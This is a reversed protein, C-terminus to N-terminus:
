CAPRGKPNTSADVTRIPPRATPNVLDVLRSGYVQFLAGFFFRGFRSLHWAVSMLREDERLRKARPSLDQDADDPAGGTIEISPLQIRLFDSLHVRLVGLHSGDRTRLHFFTTTLDSLLDLGPDDQVVKRGMLTDDGFALRYELYRRGPGGEVLVNLSGTVDHESLGVTAKGTVGLTHDRSSLFAELDPSQCKLELVIRQTQGIGLGSQEADICAQMPLGTAFSKDNIGPPERDFYGELREDFTIGVPATQPAPSGGSPLRNLADFLPEAPAEKKAQALEPARWGPKRRREPARHGIFHEINREALALITASPNVGIARPFVSADLVFLGPVAYVEGYRDVVGDVASADSIEPALPQGMPCGGQPHVTLPQRLVSWLPNSRLRGKAARALDSMLREELQYLRHDDSTKWETVLRDDQLVLRGSARDRGMALLIARHDSVGDFGGVTGTVVTRLRANAGLGGVAQHALWNILWRGPRLWWHKEVLGETALSAIRRRWVDFRGESRGVIEKLNKPLLDLAAVAKFDFLGKTWPLGELGPSDGDPLTYGLLGLMPLLRPPLGGDQMLFFGSSDEGGSESEEDTRPPQHYVITGTIVPGQDSHMPEETSFVIGLSDGNGSFSAGPDCARAADAERGTLNRWNRLLFETTNVAGACVFVHSATASREHQFRHDWWTVHFADAAGKRVIRRAEAQTLVTAGADEAVTLYNLDLTNKAHYRCGLDCHGCGVCRGQQRGFRNHRGHIRQTTATASATESNAAHDERPDFIDILDDGTFNVALNPHFSIVRM